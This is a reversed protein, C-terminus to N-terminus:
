RSPGGRRRCPAPLARGSGPWVGAVSSRFIVALWRDISPLVDAERLYVNGFSHQAFDANRATLTTVTDNM